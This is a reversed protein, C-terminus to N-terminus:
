WSHFVFGLNRFLQNNIVFVDTIGQGWLNIGKLWNELYVKEYLSQIVSVLLPLHPM